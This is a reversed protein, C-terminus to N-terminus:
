EESDSIVEETIEESAFDLDSAVVPEVVPMYGMSRLLTSDAMEVRGANVAERKLEDEYKGM